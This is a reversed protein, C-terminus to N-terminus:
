SRGISKEEVLSIVNSECLLRVQRRSGSCVCRPFGIYQVWGLVVVVVVQSGAAAIFVFCRTAAAVTLLHLRIRCSCILPTSNPGGVCCESSGALPIFIWESRKFERLGMENPSFLIPRGCDM